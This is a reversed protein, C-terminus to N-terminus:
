GGDRQKRILLRLVDRRRVMGLLHRDGDSTVVPLCDDDCTEFVAYADVATQEPHLVWDASTAIDAALVLNTVLPDFMVSSLQPYRIVGTLAGSDSVVPYSNDRSHEIVSIVQDFTANDPISADNTRMLEKVTLSEPARSKWPDRGIARLTRNSMARLVDMVSPGAQHSIAHAIPVEGAYLVSKQIAIPGVIEFVVVTGLIVLQINECMAYLTPSVDVSRSVAMTSLAIAAGAQALLTAGLYDQVAKDEGGIRAAIRTGFYKGILRFVLYGVGVMGLTQVNNLKLEAGHVVFFIVCLLGTVRDLEKLIQRSQETTNVVTVGMSLFALLYPVGDYHYEGIWPLDLLAHARCIGLVPVMVALLLVLRKEGQVFVFGLSLILGAVVGLVISGFLDLALQGADQLFFMMTGASEGAIPERYFCVVALFFLEFLIISALNNGAVLANTFETVQGESENEKLVLITTAPATALALAGYLLAEPFSVGLCLLGGTVCVFTASLEGFSLRAARRAIRRLRAMPFHCGLNFLVLSIALETLPAFAELDKENFLQLLSPGLGLGVLLYATVKPLHFREALKGALLAALLLEGLHIAYQWPFEHM